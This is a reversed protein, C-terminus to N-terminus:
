SSQSLEDIQENLRGILAEFGSAAIVSAYDSRKISLDSVGNAIVNIIQWNENRQHLVYDIQVVEGDPKVLESRILHREKKLPRTEAIKFTEGAYGDFRSAYTAITLASFTHTMEQRQMEDMSKWYRGTVVRSIFSLDFYKTIAPALQERRGAFGLEDSARMVQTLTEHFANVVSVAEEGSSYAAPGALLGCLALVYPALRQFVGRYAELRAGCM